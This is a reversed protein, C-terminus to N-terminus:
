VKCHASREDLIAGEWPPIQVGDLKHNRTRAWLGFPLVMPEDMIACIVALHGQVKCHAVGEGEFNGRGLPIFVM